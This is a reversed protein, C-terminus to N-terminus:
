RTPDNVASISRSQPIKLIEDTVRYVYVNSTSGNLAAEEARVTVQLPLVERSRQILFVISSVSEKYM